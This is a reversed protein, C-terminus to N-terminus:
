YDKMPSATAIRNKISLRRTMLEDEIEAVDVFMEWKAAATYTDDDSVADADVIMEWSLLDEEFSCTTIETTTPHQTEILPNLYETNSSLQTPLLSIPYMKYNALSLMTATLTTTTTTTPSKLDENSSDNSNM